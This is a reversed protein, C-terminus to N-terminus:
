SLLIATASSECHEWSWEKESGLRPRQPSREILHIRQMMHRTRTNPLAPAANAWDAGPRVVPVMVSDADPRPIESALTTAAPVRIPVRESLMRANLRLVAGPRYASCTARMPKAAAMSETTTVEPCVVVVLM